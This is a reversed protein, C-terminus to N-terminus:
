TEGLSFMCIYQMVIYYFFYQSWVNSGSIHKIKTKTCVSMGYKSSYLVFTKEQNMM